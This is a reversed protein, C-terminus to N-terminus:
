RRKRSIIHEVDCNCGIVQDTPATPDHPHMMLTFGIRVWKGKVKKYRPVKFAETDKVTRGDVQKHGPRNEKSLSANHVWRKQVSLDPNKQKLRNVFTSKAENVTSRVETVAITHINKPMGLSPDKKVYNEFTKTLRNEFDAILKPNITGAKAGRRRLYTQEGTSETFQSLAGRLDKNLADKLTDSIVAGQQAAKRVFVSRKPLVEELSPVVFRKEKTSIKDLAKSWKDNTIRGIANSVKESNFAIIEDMMERYKGPTVTEGYKDKLRKQSLKLTM